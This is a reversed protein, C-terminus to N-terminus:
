EKDEKDSPTQLLVNEGLFYEKRDLEISARAPAPGPTGKGAATWGMDPLVVSFLLLLGAMLIMALRARSM